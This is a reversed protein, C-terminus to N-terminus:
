MLMKGFVCMSNRANLLCALLTVIECSLVGYLVRRLIEFHSGFLAVATLM